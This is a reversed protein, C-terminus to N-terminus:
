PVWQQKIIAANRNASLALGENHAQNLKGYFYTHFNDSKEIAVESRNMLRSKSNSHIGLPGFTEEEYDAERVM